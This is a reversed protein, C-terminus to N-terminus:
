SRYRGNRSTFRMNQLTVAIPAFIGIEPQAIVLTGSGLHQGIQLGLVTIGVLDQRRGGLQLLLEIGLHHRPLLGIVARHGIVVLSVPIHGAILRPALKREILTVLPAQLRRGLQQQIGIQTPGPSVIVLQRAELDTGIITIQQHRLIPDGTTLITQGNQIQM